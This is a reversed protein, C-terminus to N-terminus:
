QGGELPGLKSAGGGEVNGRLFRLSPPLPEPGLPQVTPRSPDSCGGVQRTNQGM